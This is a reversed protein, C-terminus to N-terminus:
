EVLPVARALELEVLVNYKNELQVFRALKQPSLIDDFRRAYKRRVRIRDSEIEFYDNVMREALQDPVALWNESYEVLLAQFRDNVTGLEALYEDYVPWFRVQEENTLRLERAVFTEREASVLSRVMAFMEDTDGIGDLQASASTAALFLATTTVFKNM